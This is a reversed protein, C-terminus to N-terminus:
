MIYLIKCVSNIDMYLIQMRYLNIYMNANMYLILMLLMSKIHFQKWLIINNNINNINNNINSNIIIIININNNLNNINNNINNNNSINNNM